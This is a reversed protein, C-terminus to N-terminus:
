SEPSEATVVKLVEYEAPWDQNLSRALQDGQRRDGCVAVCIREGNDLKRWVEYHIAMIVKYMVSM